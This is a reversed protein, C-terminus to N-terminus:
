KQVGKSKKNKECHMEFLQVYYLELFEREEAAFKMQFIQETKQVAITAQNFFSSGKVEEYVSLDIRGIREQKLTREISKALHMVLFSANEPTLEVFSERFMKFFEQFRDFVTETIQGSSLLIKLRLILEDELETQKLDTCKM